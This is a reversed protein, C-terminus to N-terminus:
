RRSWRACRGGARPKTSDDDVVFKVTVANLSSLASAANAKHGAVFLRRLRAGLRHAAEPEPGWRFSTGTRM